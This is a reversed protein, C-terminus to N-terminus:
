PIWSMLREEREETIQAKSNQQSRSFVRRCKAFRVGHLNADATTPV